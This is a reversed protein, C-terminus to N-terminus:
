ANEKKFWDILQPLGNELGALIPSKAGYQPTFAKEVLFNSTTQMTEQLFIQPVDNMNEVPFYRGGGTDALQQLFPASGVGEAVVSLTRGAM